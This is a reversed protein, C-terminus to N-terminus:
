KLVKELLIEAVTGEITAPENAPTQGLVMVLIAIFQPNLGDFGILPLTDGGM